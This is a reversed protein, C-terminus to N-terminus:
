RSIKQHGSRIYEEARDPETKEYKKAELHYGWWNTEADKLAKDLSASLEKTIEDKPQLELKNRLKEFTGRYTEILSTFRKEDPHSLEFEKWILLMLEDFDLHKVWVAKRDCLWKGISTDPIENNIWYIGWPM